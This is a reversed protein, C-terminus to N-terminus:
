RGGNPSIPASKPRTPQRAAGGRRHAPERLSVAHRDADRVGAAASQRPGAGQGAAGSRRFCSAGVALRGLLRISTEFVSVEGDVDFDLHAKVWGLADAFEADLGMVWLTDMAEILSLGLDHNKLPFGSHGGSIPMIEDRGWALGRYHHWAWRMEERVDVALAHWDTGDSQQAFAPAAGLLAAVKLVGRRGINM